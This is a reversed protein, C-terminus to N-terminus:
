GIVGQADVAYPQQGEHGRTAGAGQKEGIRKEGRIKGDDLEV